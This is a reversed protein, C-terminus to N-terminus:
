ESVKGIKMRKKLSIRYDLFALGLAGAGISTWLIVTMDLM